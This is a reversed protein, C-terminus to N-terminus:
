ALAPMFLNSLLNLFTLSSIKFLLIWKEWYHAVLLLHHTVIIGRYNIGFVILSKSCHEELLTRTSTIM